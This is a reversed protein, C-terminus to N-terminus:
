GMMKSIFRVRKIWFRRLSKMGAVDGPLSKISGYVFVQYTSVEVFTIAM